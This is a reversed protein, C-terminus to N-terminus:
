PHASGIVTETRGLRYRAGPLPRCRTIWDTVAETLPGDLQARDATVWSTVAAGAEDGPAPKLYVCGIVEGSEADLVTYAFDARRASREAHSELDALNAAPSMGGPPPWHGQFGPTARIHKISSTWAAHDAENHRAALLELRFPGTLYTEPVAFTDPVLPRTM